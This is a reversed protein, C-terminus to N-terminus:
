YRESKSITFQSIRQYDNNKGNWNVVAYESNIQEIAKENERRREENEIEKKKDLM